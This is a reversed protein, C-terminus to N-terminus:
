HSQSHGHVTTQKRHDHVTCLPVMNIQTACIKTNTKTRLVNKNNYDFYKLNHVCM